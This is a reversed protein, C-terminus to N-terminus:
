SYAVYKENHIECIYNKLEYNIINHEHKSKCLPCLNIKCINCRYFINGYSKFKNNDKCKNCKIESEDIYQTNQFEDLLINNINHGNKCEFLNIKYDQINIKINEKCEPCIIEKSKIKKERKKDSNLEFILINM